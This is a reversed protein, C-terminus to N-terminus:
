VLAIFSIVVSQLFTMFVIGKITLFKNFPNCSMLEDKMAYYFRILGTFVFFIPVNTMPMMYFQPMSLEWRNKYFSDIIVTDVSTIPKLFVFQMCLLQCQDLVAHAKNERPSSFSHKATFPLQLPPKLHDSHKILLEIVSDRNGRGLMAILLSLFTYIM